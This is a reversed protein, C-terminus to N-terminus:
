YGRADSRWIDLFTKPPHARNRAQIAREVDRVARDVGAIAERLEQEAADLKKAAERLRDFRERREPTLKEIEAKTFNTRMAGKSDFIEM